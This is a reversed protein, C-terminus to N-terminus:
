AASHRRHPHRAHRSGGACCRTWPAPRGAARPHAEPSHVALQPIGGRQHRAPLLGRVGARHGQARDVRAPFGAPALPDQRLRRSLQARRSQCRRRLNGELQPVVEAVMEAVERVRYNEATIGSTSRKTTSSSGRRRSFPSSPARSIRSTCWRAGRCATARSSCRAPRARCIGRPQQRGSRRAPAVLSRFGDRQAPVDPQLLRGGAARRRAGGLGQKGRVADRPQLRASEDLFTTAPRATTAAPPPSSTARCARRKRSARSACRLRTISRTPPPPSRPRGASRQLHRRPAAVADLGRLDELEVERVDKRM